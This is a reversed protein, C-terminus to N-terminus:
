DVEVRVVQDGLQILDGSQVDHLGGSRMRLFLGSEAAGLDVLTASGDESLRVEAHRPGLLSDAPFNMDCGMRGVAIAPGSRHCTRGTRGGSLVETIRVTAPGAPRPTGLFPTDGDHDATLECPGDFRLLREGAIFHDGLELPASERVKIFVGNSTGEDRLLLRDETFVLTVVHPALHPDDALEIAAGAGGLANELHGLVFTTGAAPGRAIVVSAHFPSPAEEAPAALTEPDPQTSAHLPHEDPDFVLAQQEATWEAEAVPQHAEDRAEYAVQISPPPEVASLIPKVPQIARLPEIREPPASKKFPTGCDFCFNVTPPNIAGCSSCNKQTPVPEAARVPEPAKPPARRGNSSVGADAAEESSLELGALEEQVSGSGASPTDAHLGAAPGKATGRPDRQPQEKAASVTRPEDETLVYGCTTCRREGPENYSECRRCVEGLSDALQPHGPALEEERLPARCRVCDLARDANEKGCAPCSIAM